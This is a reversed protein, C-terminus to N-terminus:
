GDVGYSALATGDLADVAVATAPRRACTCLSGTFELERFQVLWILRRGLVPTGDDAVQVSLHVLQAESSLDSAAAVGLQVAAAAVARDRGIAGAPLTAPGPEVALQVLRGDSRLALMPAQPGTPGACAVLWLAAGLLAGLTAARL